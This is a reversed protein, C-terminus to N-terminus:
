PCYDAYMDLNQICSELFEIHEPKKRFSERTSEDIMNYSSNLQNWADKNNSSFMNFIHQAAICDSPVKLSDRFFKAIDEADACFEMYMLQFLQNQPQPQPQPQAKITPVPKTPKNFPDVQTFGDINALAAKQESSLARYLLNKRMMSDKPGMGKECLFKDLAGINEFEEFLEDHIEPHENIFDKTKAGYPPTPDRELQVAGLDNIALKNGVSPKDSYLQIFHASSTKSPPKREKGTKTIGKVKSTSSSSSSSTTTTSTASPKVQIQEAPKSYKNFIQKIDKLLMLKGDEDVSLRDSLYASLEKEFGIALAM